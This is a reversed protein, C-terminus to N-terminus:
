LKKQHNKNEYNKKRRKRFVMNVTKSTFFIPEREAAWADLKSTVGQLARATVTQNRTTIQIVLDEAFLLGVLGNGLEELIGNNAVLFLTVSLVGGQQIRPDTQRNQSTSGVM